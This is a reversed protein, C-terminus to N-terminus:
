KAELRAQLLPRLRSALEPRRLAEDVQALVYYLHNGVDYRNSDFLVAQLRGARALTDLGDTLQIEGGSGPRVEKLADLIEPHFAYRGIIAYPSPAKDPTPKEVTRLVKCAGDGLKAGGTDIIGYQNVDKSEVPLVGITSVGQEAAKCLFQLGRPSNATPFIEDGLAVAFPEDGLVPRACLVAHGLGLPEKQRVSIVEVMQGIKKVRDALENKGRGRLFAELAPSPDFYDELASKGKSTILVVQEIGARIAEEVILHLAPTDVIPVLEKPIEKSFPLGRTGVGAAPIVIKRIPKM